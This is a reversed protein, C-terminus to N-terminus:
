ATPDPIAYLVSDFTNYYHQRIFFRYGPCLQFLLAPLEWLDEAKHYLSMALVPRSRRILREAGKLAQLEAGEVDLKLFDVHTNPLMQDLSVMAVHTTGDESIAGGEGNGGSFTLLGYQDGVALPLCEAQGGSQRVAEVLELYNETDPEFLYASKCEVRNSALLDLYTDGNYAGCDVYTIPRGSLAGFTLDNFYQNETHRFGAYDIDQGLRFACIRLLTQKSEEDALRSYVAEIRDLNDGIRKPGSLWFRWGLQAGFQAYLEWPMLPSSYGVRQTAQVLQDMPVDRNFIGLALQQEHTESGFAALSRVPLEAVKALKPNTEVFGGVTFGGSQIVRALDQGFRGAGYIWIPKAPEVKRLPQACVDTCTRAFAEFLADGGAM